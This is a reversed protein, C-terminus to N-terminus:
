SNDDLDDAEPASGDDLLMDEAIMDFYESIMEYCVTVSETELDYFANAEGCTTATITITKPLAFRSSIAEATQELVSSDRLIQEAWGFEEGGDDYSVTIPEGQGEFPSLLAEISSSVQAYDDACSQQRDPDMEMYDAAQSFGEPDSGVMLCTIAYARQLDLSHEDYFDANEFEEVQQDALVWGYTSDTLAMDAAETKMQLLAYTAINDVADEERGLVPIGLQHILMHGLEHYLVFWTNNIAFEDASAIQDDTLDQAVAANLSFALGAVAALVRMFATM